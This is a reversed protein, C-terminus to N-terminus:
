GSKPTANVLLRGCFPVSLQSTISSTLMGNCCRERRACPPLSFPSNIGGVTLDGGRFRSEIALEAFGMSGEFGVDVLCPQQAARQQRLRTGVEIRGHRPVFGAPDVEIGEDLGLPLNQARAKGQQVGVGLDM